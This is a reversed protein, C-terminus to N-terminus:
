IQDLSTIFARYTPSLSTYTLYYRLPHQTYSHVGQREAIPRDLDSCLDTEKEVLSHVDTEAKEQAEELATPIPNSEIRQQTQVPYYESRGLHNKTRSYVQFEKKPASKPSVLNPNPSIPELEVLNHEISVSKKTSEPTNKLSSSNPLPTSPEHLFIHTSSTSSRSIPEILSLCDWNQSEQGNKEGQIVFNSNYPQDEFFTVDM